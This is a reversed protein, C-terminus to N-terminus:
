MKRPNKSACFELFSRTAKGENNVDAYLLFPRTIPYTGDNVTDRTPLIAPSNNDKKVAIVKVIAEQGQEKLQVLNRIRVFGTANKSEAVAPIISRFFAKTVAHSAIPAKLFDKTFFDLTGPRKEGVTLLSIPEDFGGVQNWNTIEGTFLKRVQEVTLENVPNSPNTIIAIGGWGIIRETFTVGKKAAADKASKDVDHGQMIIETERKCLSDVADIPSAGGSVIINCGPNNKMFERAMFDVLDAMSDSGKIRIVEKSSDQSYAVASFLATVAVMAVVVVFRLKNDM